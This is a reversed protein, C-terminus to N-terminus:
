ESQKQPLPILSCLGGLLAGFSNHPVDDMEARGMGHAFQIYEVGAGTLLKRLRHSRFRRYLRLFYWTAVVM